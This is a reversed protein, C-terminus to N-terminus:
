NGNFVKRDWFDGEMVKPGYKTRKDNFNEKLEEALNFESYLTLFGPL